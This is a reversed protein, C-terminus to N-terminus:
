ILKPHLLCIKRLLEISKELESETFINGNDPHDIANRIYTPLTKYDRTQYRSDKVCEESFLPSEFIKEDTQQVKNTKTLNQFYGYLQNHYDNSVIHFAEYNIEASTLTPLIFPGNVRKSEIDGNKEKLLIVLTNEKDALATELILESHTAFILQAFQDDKTTILDEYFKMIKKAWRPHMGNEPEDILVVGDHMNKLNKLVSAGRVVIQKEGSSLNVMEFRKGNKQFFIKGADYDANDFKLREFFNNFASKFRHLRNQQEFISYQEPSLGSHEYALKALDDNDKRVVNLFLDKVEKESVDQEYTKADIDSENKEKPNVFEKENSYKTLVGSYCFGTLLPLTDMPEGNGKICVMESNKTNGGAFYNSIQKLITTKGCGNEGILLVNKYPKGNANLFDLSLNGLIPHNKFIIKSIM